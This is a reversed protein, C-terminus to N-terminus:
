DKLGLRSRDQPQDDGSYRVGADRGGHFFERGQKSQESKESGTEEGLVYGGFIAGLAEGVKLFGTGAYDCGGFGEGVGLQVM